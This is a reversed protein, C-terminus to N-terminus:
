YAAIRQLRLLSSFRTIFEAPSCHIMVKITRVEQQELQPEPHRVLHYAMTKSASETM